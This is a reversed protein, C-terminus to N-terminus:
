RHYDGAREPQYVIDLVRVTLADGDPGPWAIEDGESLGLLAGGVPSLISISDPEGSDKPYTLTKCFIEGTQEMLFRVTSNMTVVSAPMDRPELVDARELEERLASKPANFPMAELLQEIRDFDLSSIIINPKM